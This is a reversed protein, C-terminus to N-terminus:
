LRYGGRQVPPTMTNKPHVGSKSKFDRNSKSKPMKSRKSMFGGYFILSRTVIFFSYCTLVRGDLRFGTM